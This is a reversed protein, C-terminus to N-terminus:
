SFKEGDSCDWIPNEHENVTSLKSIPCVYGSSNRPPSVCSIKKSNGRHDERAECIVFYDVYKNLINLRLELLDEENLYTICDYIKM